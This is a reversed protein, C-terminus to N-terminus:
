LVNDNSNSNLDKSMGSSDLSLELVCITLPM